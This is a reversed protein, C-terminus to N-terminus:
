ENKDKNKSFICGCYNQRYLNLKRSYELSKIFGNKKKFNTDYFELGYDAAIKNGILNILTANKHPSVTLTTTFRNLGLERAKEATKELRFRFCIFCRTGGEDLDELGTIKGSWLERDKIDGYDGYLEFNMLGAVKETEKFRKIDEETSDMNPNYYYGIVRFGKERLYETAATSDPACCIHLLIKNDLKKRKM